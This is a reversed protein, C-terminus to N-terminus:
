SFQQNGEFMSCSNSYVLFVFLTRSRGQNGQTTPKSSSPQNEDSRDFLSLVPSESLSTDRCPVCDPEKNWQCDLMLRQVCWVFCSFAGAHQKRIKRPIHHFIYIVGEAASMAVCALKYSMRHVWFCGTKHTKRCAFDCEDEGGM